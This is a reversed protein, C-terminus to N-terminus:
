SPGISGTADLAERSPLGAQAGLSEDLPESRDRGTGGRRRDGLGSKLYHCLIGALCDGAGTSDVVEVTPAPVHVADREPTYLTAGAAGDTLIITLGKAGERIMQLHSQAISANGIMVHVSQLVDIWAHLNREIEWAECSLVVVGRAHGVFRQVTPATLGTLYVLASKSGILGADVHDMIPAVGCDVIVCRRSGRHTIVAIGTNGPVSCVRDSLLGATELEVRVWAGIPDTGVTAALVVDSGLSRAAAAANAATGGLSRRSGLATVKENLAAEVPLVLHIDMMVDGIFALRPETDISVTM